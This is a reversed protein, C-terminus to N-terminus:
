VDGGGAIRGTYCFDSYSKRNNVFTYNCTFVYHPFIYTFLFLTDREIIFCFQCIEHKKRKPDPGEENKLTNADCEADDIEKDPLASGNVFCTSCIGYKKNPDPGEKLLLTTKTDCAEAIM